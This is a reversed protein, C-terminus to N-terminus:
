PACLEMACGSCAPDKAVDVTRFRMTLLDAILLKGAMDTGFPVLARITELGLRGDPVSLAALRDLQAQVAPDDSRAFDKM